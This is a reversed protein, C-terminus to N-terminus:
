NIGKITKMIDGLTSLIRVQQGAATEKDLINKLNTRYRDMKGKLTSLINGNKTIEDLVAQYKDADDDEKIKDHIIASAKQVEEIKVTLEEITSDLCKTTDIMIDEFSAAASSKKFVAKKTPKKVVKKAPKKVAKKTPKKVVKKAPKKVAKKKKVEAM